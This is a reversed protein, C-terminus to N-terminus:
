VKFVRCKVSGEDSQPGCGKICVKPYVEAERLGM